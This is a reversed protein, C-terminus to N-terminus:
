MCTGRSRMSHPTASNATVSVEVAASSQGYTKSSTIWGAGETIKVAWTEGASVTITQMGAEGNFELTTPTVTFPEIKPQCGVALLASLAVFAYLIRKM